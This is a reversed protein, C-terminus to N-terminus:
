AKSCVEVSLSLIQLHNCPHVQSAWNALRKEAMALVKISSALLLLSLYLTIEIGTRTTKESTISIECKLCSTVVFCM